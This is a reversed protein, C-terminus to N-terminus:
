DEELVRAEPGRTDRTRQALGARRTEQSHPETCIPPRLAVCSAAQSQAEFTLQQKSEPLERHSVPSRGGGPPKPLLPSGSHPELDAAAAGM